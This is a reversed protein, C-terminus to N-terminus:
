AESEKIEIGLLKTCGGMRLPRHKDESTGARPLGADQGGANGPKHRLTDIRGRDERHGEGVLSGLLHAFTDSGGHLGILRLEDRERREMRETHAEEAFMGVEQAVLLVEADEVFPILHPQHLLDGGADVILLVRKIRVQRAVNDALRLIEADPFGVGRVGGEAAEERLILVLKAREIRHVEIIEQKLGAREQAVMLLRALLPAGAVRMDKDILELIRVLKLKLQHAQQGGIVPRIDAHHTVVVLADVSPAPGLRCVKQLELPVEGIRLHDLELLVVAAGIDNEGDRVSENFVVGAAAAFVEPAVALITVGYADERGHIVLGLGLEDGVLDLRGARLTGFRQGPGGKGDEVPHIGLRPLELLHEAFPLNRVADHSSLAEEVTALHLIDDGVEPCQKIGIVVIGEQPDQSIRRTSDAARRKLESGFRSGLIALTEERDQVIRLMEIDAGCLGTAGDLAEGLVPSGVADLKLSGSGVGRRDQTPNQLLAAVELIELFAALRVFLGVITLLIDAFQEIGEGTVALTMRLISSTAEKVAKHQLLFALLLLGLLALSHSQDCEMGRLSKLIGLYPKDTGFIPEKGMFAGLALSRDLLLAAQEINSDGSSTVSQGDGM